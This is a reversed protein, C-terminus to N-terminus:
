GFTKLLLPGVSRSECLVYGTLEELAEQTVAEPAILHEGHGFREVNRTKLVLKHREYDGEFHLQCLVEFNIGFITKLIAGRENKEDRSSFGLQYDKLVQRLRDNAPSPREVKLIPKGKSLRYDLTVRTFLKRIPTVERTRLDLHGVDWAFDTFEPVGHIAYNKAPMEPKLVDLQAVLDKLYFYTRKLAESVKDEKEEKSEAKARAADDAVKQAAAKLAALRGVPAAPAPAASSKAAAALAADAPDVGTGGSAAAKLLEELGAVSEASPNVFSMGHRYGTVGPAQLSSVVRALLRMVRQTENTQRTPLALLITVTAGTLDAYDTRIAGGGASLDFTETHLIPRALTKEFVVAAKWRIPYRKHRREKHEAM